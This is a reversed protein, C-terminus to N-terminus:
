SRLKVAPNPASKLYGTVLRAGEDILMEMQEDSIMQSYHLVANHTL